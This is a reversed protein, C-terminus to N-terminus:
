RETARLRPPPWVGLGSRAHLREADTACALRPEHPAIVCALLLCDLHNGPAREEFVQLAEEGVLDRELRLETLAVDVDHVRVLHQQCLRVQAEEHLVDGAARERIVDAVAALRGVLAAPQKEVFHLRPVEELHAAAAGACCLESAALANAPGVQSHVLCAREDM